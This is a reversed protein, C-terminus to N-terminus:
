YNHFVLELMKWYRPHELIKSNYYLSVIQRQLEPNQPIYIKGQFHLLGNINSWELLHVSRSTSQWLEQATKTIPEELDGKCNSYYIKSLVKQEVGTLEVGKLTHITFLEPCLLTIRENDTAESGYDPRQSLADPKGMSYGPCNCLSFDSHALYLSWYAQCHNLKKAMM